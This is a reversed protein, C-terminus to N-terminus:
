GFDIERDERLKKYDYGESFKIQGKLEALNKKRRRSVFERLALDIIEKKTQIKALERAEDILKKDIFINTYM